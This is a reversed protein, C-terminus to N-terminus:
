RGDLDDPRYEFCLVDDGSEDRYLPAIALRLPLGPELRELPEATLRSVVRLREPLEVIGFGYPVQGRYGPPATTVITHLFLRGRAGIAVEHCHEGSCYPCSQAAPFQHRGCATCRSALLGQGRLDGPLTFLGPHIAVSAM